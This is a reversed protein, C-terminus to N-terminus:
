VRALMRDAVTRATDEGALVATLRLAFELATGPGRSTVINGDVVVREQSHTTSSDFAGEFSPYCTATRGNLLGFKALTMAPAACIAACVGGSEHVKLTLTRVAESKGLNEAGVLGGPLVIADPVEDIEEIAVDCQYTVDHGGRILTGGVGAITVDLEARRLVDIPAVAEIEEFGPALVVVIKKSTGGSM